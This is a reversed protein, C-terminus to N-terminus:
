WRYKPDTGFWAEIDNFRYVVINNEDFGLKYLQKKIEEQERQVSVVVLFDEGERRQPKVIPVNQYSRKEYGAANDWFEYVAGEKGWAKLFDFLQKGAQGCGFIIMKSCSNIKSVIDSTHYVPMQNEANQRIEQYVADPLALCAIEWWLEGMVTKLNKWPKALATAYHIICPNELAANIEQESFRTELMHREYGYGISYINYKLHFIKTKEYCCINLVDQDQCSWSKTSYELFSNVLGEKRIKELNMVLVGANFYQKASEIGLYRALIKECEESFLVGIGLGAALYQDEIDIGYLASLDSCVLLDADLYICKKYEKLYEPILLRYYTPKTIHNITIPVDSFYDNSVEIYEIEYNEFKWKEDYNVSITGAPVMIYFLLKYEAKRSKLVSYITTYVFPLYGADSALVIPITCVKSM